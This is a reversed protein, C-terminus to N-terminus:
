ASPGDSSILLEEAQDLFAALQGPEGAGTSRWEAKPRVMALESAERSLNDLEGSTMGRQRLYYQAWRTFALMWMTVMLAGDWLTWNSTSALPRLVVRRQRKLIAQMSNLCTQQRESSSNAFLFATINTTQGERARDFLRAGDKLQPELMGALEHMWIECADDFNVRSNQLLPFVVDKFLWPETWVLQRMHGRLSDILCRLEERSIALPLTEHLAVVLGDYIEAKKENKAVRSIMWGLTQIQNAYSFAAILQLVTALGEPEELQREIANLGLWQLLGNESGVLRDRQKDDIDFQISLSIDSVIQGLLSLRMVDEHGPEISVGAMQGEAITLLADPAYWWLIKIAYSESWTLATYKTGHFLHEHRYSSHLLTTTPMHFLRGDAVALERDTEDLTRSFSAEIFRALFKLFGENSAFESFRRDGARSHALVEGLVEWTATFDTFDDAQKLMFQSLGAADHLALSDNNLLGLATVQEKLRDGSLGRLSPEGTWLSLVDGAQNKKLFLLPEYRQPVTSSAMSDFLLRMSHSETEGASQADKAEQVLGSKYQEVEILIDAPIPTVLLPYNEAAKQISNSLNFGAIPLGDPGVILLYRDHLQGEKLGYIRLKIRQLLRGNHECNALLNNIRERPLTDSKRRMPKGEKRSKPLSTFVIYDADSEACLLMLGLGADDFYPDFIIVQHQKYKGLLARFWEVFQLRGEGDGQSWRLFFRAESKPPRLRKFLSALDRNVPVWPDAERGGICNTFGINGRNVTL